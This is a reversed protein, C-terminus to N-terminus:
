LILIRAIDVKYVKFQIFWVGECPYHKKKQAFEQSILNVNFFSNIASCFLILRAKSFVWFKDFKECFNQKMYFPCEFYEFEPYFLRLRM